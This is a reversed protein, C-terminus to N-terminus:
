ETAVDTHQRRSGQSSTLSKDAPTVKFKRGLKKVGAKFDRYNIVYIFPNVCTNMCTIAFTIHLIHPNIVKVNGSQTLTWYVVEPLLCTVYAITVFLLTKLLNKQTVASGKRRMVWTMHSYFYIMLLLPVFFYSLVYSISYAEALHQNRLFSWMGCIGDEAYTSLQSWVLKFCLGYVWVLVICPVAFKQKSLHKHYIPWVVGLYRELNIIVLNLVSAISIGWGVWQTLYLRCYLESGVKGFPMRMGYFYLVFFSTFLLFSYLFDLWSQHLILLGSIMKTMQTYKMIVVIVFGNGLAGLIGICIFLIYYTDITNLPVQIFDYGVTLVEDNGATSPDHTVLLGAQYPQMGESSDAPTSM